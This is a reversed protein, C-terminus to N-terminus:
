GLAWRLSHYRAREADNMGADPLTARASATLILLFLLLHKM